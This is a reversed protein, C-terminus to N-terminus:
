KLTKARPCAYDAKAITRWFTIAFVNCACNDTKPFCYILHKQWAKIAIAIGSYSYSYFSPLFM